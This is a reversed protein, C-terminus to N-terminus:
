LTGEKEDWYDGKEIIANDTLIEDACYAVVEAFTVDPVVDFLYYALQNKSNNHHEIGYNIALQLLRTTYIKLLEDKDNSYKTIVAEIFQRKAFGAEYELNYIPTTTKM